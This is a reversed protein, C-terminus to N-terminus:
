DDWFLGASAADGTAGPGDSGPAEDAAGATTAAPLGATAELLRRIAEEGEAGYDVSFDNVYLDIHQQCVVPDIEQAHARVYEATAEPNALGHEVSARVARDIEAKVGDALTRRVAIGGLPLPLGTFDEWWEGLDVLRRLGYAGYTFRGEHIIVGADVEGNAVAPMIADFPMILARSLGGSFLDALMAATTLEGPIAVRARGLGDALASVRQVNPAPQLRSNKPAVVLPGCGRGMAGGSHLLAYQNRMRAFAYMSVKVVDAKGELALGNLTDIDELEERVPPAGALLGHVWAYFIFTDNPCSSYALVLPTQADRISGDSAPLSFM